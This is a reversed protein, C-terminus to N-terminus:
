VFRQDVAIFTTNKTIIIIIQYLLDRGLREQCNDQQIDYIKLSQSCASILSGSTGIM